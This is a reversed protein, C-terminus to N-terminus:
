LGDNTRRMKSRASPRASVRPTSRHSTFSLRTVMASIALTWPQGSAVSYTRSTATVRPIGDLQVPGVPLRDGDRASAPYEAMELGLRNDARLLLSGGHVVRVRPHCHRGHYILISTYNRRVIHGPVTSTRTRGCFVCDIPRRAPAQKWPMPAFRWEIREHASTPDPTMALLLLAGCGGSLGRLSVPLQDFSSISGSPTQSPM